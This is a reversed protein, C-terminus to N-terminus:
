FTREFIVEFSIHFLSNATADEGCSENVGYDPTIGTAVQSSGGQVEVQYTGKFMAFDFRGPDLAGKLDTKTETNIIAFGDATPAWQVKVPINNIGQGTSDQVKVFIHHKGRNECPTLQRVSVLRFDVDPTPTPAPTPTETPARTARPTATFAPTPTDTPTPTFIPTPTETPLPTNTPTHTLTPIPTETPTASATPTQSPTPTNTPTPTATEVFPLMAMAGVAGDERVQNAISRKDGPLAGDDEFTAALSNIIFSPAMIGCLWIIILVVALLRLKAGLSRKAFWVSFSSNHRQLRRNSVVRPQLAVASDSKSRDRRRKQPRQPGSKAANGKPPQQNPRADKPPPVNVSPAEGSKAAVVPTPRSQNGPKKGKRNKPSKKNTADPSQPAQAAMPAADKVRKRPRSDQKRKPKPTANPKSANPRVPQTHQAHVGPPGSQPRSGVPPMGITPQSPAPPQQQHGFTRPPIAAVPQAGSISGVRRVRVPPMPSSAPAFPRSPQHPAPPHPQQVHPPSYPYRPPNAVPGTAAPLARQPGGGRLRMMLNNLQETFVGTFANGLHPYRRVFDDFNAQTLVWVETNTLVHATTPHQHGHSLLAVEGCFDGPGLTDLLIPGQMTTAWLEIQGREVFYLEQGFQGERYLASGAQYHRPQLREDLTSAEMRSLGVQQAIKSLRPESASSRSVSLRDRVAKGLAASLQPYKLLLNDFDTRYIGWLNSPTAAFATYSRTKGTLLAIEGFYDGDSFRGILESPKGPSDAVAEISGSDVIYMADGADGQNFVLEGAPIHRLLILRAIDDLASQPLEEFLPIQKLVTVAYTQDALSLSARLSRSLNTKISPYNETLQLFDTPSLQWVVVSNAAQATKSHPKSSIVSMEGFVEGDTVEAYDEDTDGMLRILGQEIFYLGTPMDGSRYIAENASFRQPSLRQIILAQERTSLDKLLPSVSLQKILIDQYQAIGIGLALGLKLGVEPRDEIIKSFDDNSLSWVTLVGSALATTSHPQGLFFDTEGVVSGPGLNAVSPGSDDATIKVWGEKILYIADSEGGRVFLSENPKYNELRMRKGFSRQEEETLETFLPANKIFNEKM